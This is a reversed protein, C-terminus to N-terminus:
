LERGTVVDFYVFNKQNHKIHPPSYDRSLKMRELQKRSIIKVPPAFPQRKRYWDKFQAVQDASPGRRKKAWVWGPSVYRKTRYNYMPAVVSFGPNGERGGLGLRELLRKFM